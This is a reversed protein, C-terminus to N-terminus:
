PRAYKFLPNLLPFLNSKAGYFNKGTHPTNKLEDEIEFKDGTIKLADDHLTFAEVFWKSNSLYGSFVEPSGYFNSPVDIKSCLNTKILLALCLLRVLLLYKM